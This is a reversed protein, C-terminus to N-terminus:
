ILQPKDQQQKKRLNPHKKEYPNYRLKTKNSPTTSDQLTSQAKRKTSTRDTLTSNYEKNDNANNSTQSMSNAQIM